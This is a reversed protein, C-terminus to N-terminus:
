VHYYLNYPSTNRKRIYLSNEIIYWKPCIHDISPTRCKLWKSSRVFQRPTARNSTTVYTYLCCKPTIYATIYATSSPYLYNMLGYRYLNSWKSSRIISGTGILYNLFIDSIPGYWVLVFWLFSFRRLDNKPYVISMKLHMKKFSFIYMKIVIEIFNTELPGILFNWCQNM